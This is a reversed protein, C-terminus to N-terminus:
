YRGIPRTHTHTNCVFIGYCYSVSPIAVSVCTIGLICHNIATHTPSQFYEYYHSLLAHLYMIVIIIIHPTNTHCGDGGVWEGWSNCMSKYDATVEHHSGAEDMIRDNSIYGRSLLSIKCHTSTTSTSTHVSHARRIPSHFCVGHNRFTLCSSPSELRVQVRKTIFPTRGYFDSWPHQRGPYNGLKM